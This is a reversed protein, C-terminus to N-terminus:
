TMMTTSLPSELVRGDRYHEFYILLLLLLLLIKGVM